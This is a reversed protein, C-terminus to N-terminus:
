KSPNMAFRTGFRAGIKAWTEASVARRPLVQGITLQMARHVCRVGNDPAAMDIYEEGDALWAGGEKASVRAVEDDSLFQLISCRTEDDNKRPHSM